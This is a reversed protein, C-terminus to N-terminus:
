AFLANFEALEKEKRENSYAFVNRTGAEAIQERSIKYVTFIPGYRGNDLAEFYLNGGGKKKFLAVKREVNNLTITGPYGKGIIFKDDIQASWQAKLQRIIEKEAEVKNM